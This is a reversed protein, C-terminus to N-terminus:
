DFLVKVFYLGRKNEVKGIFDKEIMKNLIQNLRQGEINVVERLQTPTFKVGMKNKTIMNIASQVESIWEDTTKRLKINKESKRSNPTKMLDCFNRLFVNGASNIKWYIQRGERRKTIFGANKLDTIHEQIISLGYEEGFLNVKKNIESSKIENNELLIAVIKSRVSDGFLSSFQKNKKSVYNTNGM